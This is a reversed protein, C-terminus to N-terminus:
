IDQWMFTVVGAPDAQAGEFLHPCKDHLDQLALCESVLHEEDGITRHRCM